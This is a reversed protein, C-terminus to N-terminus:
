CYFQFLWLLIVALTFYLQLYLVANLISWNSTEILDKAAWPASIHRNKLLCWVHFVRYRTWPWQGADFWLVTLTYLTCQVAPCLNQQGKSKRMAHALWDCHYTWAWWHVRWAMNVTDNNSLWSQCFCVLFRTVRTSVLCVVFADAVSSVFLRLLSAFYLRFPLFTRQFEWKSAGGDGFFPSFWSPSPCNAIHTM